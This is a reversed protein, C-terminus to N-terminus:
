LGYKERLEVFVREAPVRNKPDKALELRKSLYDLFEPSKEHNTRDIDRMQKDTATSM